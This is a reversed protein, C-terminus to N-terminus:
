KNEQNVGSSNETGCMKWTNCSNQVYVEKNSVLFVGISVGWGCGFVFFWMHTVCVCLLFFTSIIM